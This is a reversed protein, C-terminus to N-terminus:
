ISTPVRDPFDSIVGDAGMQIVRVIDISENVTYLWVDLGAEHLMEIGKPTAARHTLGVINARANWAFKAGGPPLHEVLVLTKATSDRTRIETVEGHLFSAYVVDGAFGSNRVLGLLDEAIGAVKMELMMGAKGSAVALSEEVSPIREGAGADLSRLEEFTMQAIAGVGNTTRNVLPDHMIVLRGDRTRHVDVEVFDADLEIGRRIAALTNEPAHGAAGRHGIRIIRRNSSRWNHDGSHLM